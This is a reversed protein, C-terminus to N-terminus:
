PGPRHAWRFSALALLAAFSMVAGMATLAQGSAAAGVWAAALAGFLMQAGRFLASASGAIHPLPQMAEHTANPRILGSYLNNIVLLGLTTAASGAGALGSALLLLASGASGLLAGVLIMRPSLGAALLRDNFLAGAMIGAAIAAFIMGYGAVSIGYQGMFVAPSAAIFAFMCAVSFGNGLTYGLFLRNGLAEGYARVMPRIAAGAGSPPRSEGLGLAVFVLLLLGIIWLVSFVHRWGLSAVVLSGILPAVVPAIGMVLTILTLVRRGRLGEFRDRVVALPIASCIGAGVGQVLRGAMFLDGRTAAFCLMGGASFLLVGAYLVPKRGLSDSLPGFWLPGLAYGLLFIGVTGAGGGPALGLDRELHQFGPLAMDIALPTLASLLSLALILVGDRSLRVAPHGPDDPKSFKKFPPPPSCWNVGRM